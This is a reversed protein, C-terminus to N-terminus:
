KQVIYYGNYKFLPIDNALFKPYKEDMSGPQVILNPHKFVVELLETYIMWQGLKISEDISDLKALSGDAVFTPMM